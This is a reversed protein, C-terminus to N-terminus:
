VFVQTLFHNVVVYQPFSREKISKAGCIATIEHRFFIPILKGRHNPKDTRQAIFFTSQSLYVSKLCVRITGELLSLNM